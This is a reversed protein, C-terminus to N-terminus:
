IYALIHELRHASFRAAEVVINGSLLILLSAFSSRSSSEFQRVLQFYGHMQKIIVSVLAFFYVSTACLSKQPGCLIASLSPAAPSIDETIFPANFLHVILFLCEIFYVSCYRASSFPRSLSNCLSLFAAEYRLYFTIGCRGGCYYDCCARCTDSYMKRYYIILASRDVYRYAAVAGGVAYNCGRFVCLHM